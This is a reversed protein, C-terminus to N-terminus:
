RHRAALKRYTALAVLSAGVAEGLSAFMVNLPSYTVSVGAFRMTSLSSAETRILNPVIIGAVFLTALLACMIRVLSICIRINM